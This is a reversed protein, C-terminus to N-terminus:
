KSCAKELLSILRVCAQVTDSHLHQLEQTTKQPLRHAGPKTFWQEFCRNAPKGCDRLPGPVKERRAHLQVECMASWVDKVFNEGPLAMKIFLACFAHHYYECSRCSSSHLWGTLALGGVMFLLEYEKQSTSPEYYENSMPEAGADPLKSLKEQCGGTVLWYERAVADVDEFV